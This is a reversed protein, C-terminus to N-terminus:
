ASEHAIGGRGKNVTGAATERCRDRFEKLSTSPGWIGLAGVAAVAVPGRGSWVEAEAIRVRFFREETVPIAGSNTVAAEMTLEPMRNGGPPPIRRILIM